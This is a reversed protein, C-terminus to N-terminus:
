IRPEDRDFRRGCGIAGGSGGYIVDSVVVFVGGRDARKGRGFDAMFDAAGGVRTNIAVGNRDALFGACVYACPLCAPCIDGGICFFDWVGDVDAFLYGLVGDLIRENPLATGARWLM